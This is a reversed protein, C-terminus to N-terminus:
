RVFFAGIGLGCFLLLDHCGSLRLRVGGVCRTFLCGGLDQAWFCLYSGATRDGGVALGEDELLRCKM